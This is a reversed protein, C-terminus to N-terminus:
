YRFHGNVLKGPLGRKGIITASARQGDAIEVTHVETMRREEPIKSFHGPPHTPWRDRKREM